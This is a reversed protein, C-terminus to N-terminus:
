DITSSLEAASLLASKCAHRTQKGMDLVSNSDSPKLEQM